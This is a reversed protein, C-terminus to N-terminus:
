WDRSPLSMEGFLQQSLYQPAPDSCRTLDKDESMQRFDRARGQACSRGPQQSCQWPRATGCPVVSIRALMTRRLSLIEGLNCKKAGLMDLVRSRSNTM